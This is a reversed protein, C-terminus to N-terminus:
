VNGVDVVLKEEVFAVVEAVTTEDLEVSNGVSVVSVVVYACDVDEDVDEVLKVVDTAVGVVGLVVSDVSVDMIVSFEVVCDEVLPVCGSEVSNEDVVFVDGVWVVIGSVDDDVVLKVVVPEDFADEDSVVGDDEVIVSDVVDASSLEVM